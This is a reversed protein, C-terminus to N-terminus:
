CGSFHVKLDRHAIKHLHLHQVGKLVHTFGLKKIPGSIGGNKYYEILSMDARPFLYFNSNEGQM